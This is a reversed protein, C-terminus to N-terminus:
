ILGNKLLSLYWDQVSKWKEGEQAILNRSKILNKYEEMMGHKLAITALQDTILRASDKSFSTWCLNKDHLRRESIVNRVYFFPFKAALKVFFLWDEGLFNVPFGGSELFTKRSIAFSSPVICCWRLLNSFIPLDDKFEEGPITFSLGNGRNVTMGFGCHFGKLFGTLLSEVHEKLWLDDSDLFMLIDAKASAGGLNRAPGPGLGQAKIIRVEPFEKRIFDATGDRSGDDVVITESVPVTQAKISALAEAVLEKRDRVPIICAVKPSHM